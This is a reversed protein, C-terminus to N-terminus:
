SRKTSREPSQVKDGDIGGARSYMVYGGVVVM